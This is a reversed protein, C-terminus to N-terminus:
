GAPAVSSVLLPSGTCGTERNPDPVGTVTVQQGDRVQAAPPGILVWNLQDTILETCGGTIRIRGKTVVQQFTDTMPESKTPKPVGVPISITPEAGRSVGPSDSPPPAAPRVPEDTKSACGALVCVALLLGLPAKMSGQVGERNM